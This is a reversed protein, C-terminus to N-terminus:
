FIMSTVLSGNEFPMLAFNSEIYRQDLNEFQVLNLKSLDQPFDNVWCNYYTGAEQKLDTGHISNYDGVFGGGQVRPSCQVKASERNVDPGDTLDGSFLFNSSRKISNYFQYIM